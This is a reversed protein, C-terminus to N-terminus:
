CSKGPAIVTFAVGDLVQDSSSAPNLVVEYEALDEETTNDSFYVDGFDVVRRSSSIGFGSNGLTIGNRSWTTFLYRGSTTIELVLKEPPCLIIISPSVAVVSLTEGTYCALSLTASVTIHSHTSVLTLDYPVLLLCKLVHFTLSSM